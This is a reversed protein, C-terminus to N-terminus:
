SWALARRRTPAHLSRRVDLPDPAGGDKDLASFSNLEERCDSEAIANQGEFSFAFSIEVSFEVEAAASLVGDAVVESM